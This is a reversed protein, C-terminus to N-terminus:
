SQAILLIGVFIVLMGALRLAGLHEGLLMHGLFVTLCLGIAMFPYAQSVDVRALVLLWLFAGFCYLLLGAIVPLSTMSQFSTDSMGLKMFIQGAVACCISALILMLATFSM